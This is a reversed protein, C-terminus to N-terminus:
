EEIAQHISIPKANDCKTLVRRSLGYPLSWPTEGTVTYFNKFIFVHANGVPARGLGLGAKAPSLSPTRAKLPRGSEPCKPFADAESHLQQGMPSM